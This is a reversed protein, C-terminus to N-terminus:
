DSYTVTIHGSTTRLDITSEAEPDTAVDITIGGSATDTLVRYAEGRPVSVEINGSTAEAEVRSPRETFELSISGATSRTDAIDSSLGEGTVRGSSTELSLPGRLDKLTISGSTLAVEAGASAPMHGSYDIGCGPAFWIPIGMHQCGLDVVWTSGEWEDGVVPRESAYWSLNLDATAAGTEAGTLEVSAVTGEIAVTEPVEGSTITSRETQESMGSGTIVSWALYAGAALVAATLFGGITLWARRVAAPAAQEAASHQQTTTM